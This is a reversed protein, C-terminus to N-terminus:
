RLFRGRDLVANKMEAEEMNTEYFLATRLVTRTLDAGEFNAKVFYGSTLRAYYFKSKRFDAGRANVGILNARIFNAQTARVENMNSGGLVAFECNSGTLISGSLNIWPAHWKYGEIGSLDSVILTTHSWDANSIRADTMNVNTFMCYRAITDRLDAGILNTAKGQCGNLQANKLDAKDLCTYNLRCRNMLARQLNAGDLITKYLDAGTFDSGHAIMGSLSLDSLDVGAFVANTYDRGEAVAKVLRERFGEKDKLHEWCSNNNIIAPLRCDPHICSKYNNM